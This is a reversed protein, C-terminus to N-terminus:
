AAAASGKVNADPLVSLVVAARLLPAQLSMCLTPLQADVVYQQAICLTAATNVHQLSGSVQAVKFVDKTSDLETFRANLVEALEAERSSKHDNDACLVAIDAAGLKATELALNVVTSLLESSTRGKADASKDRSSWSARHLQAYPGEGMLQCQQSDAFLLGAALEGPRVGQPSKGGYLMDKEQLADVFDQDIGSDCAVLLGLTPLQAKHATVTVFDLLAIPDQQAANSAQVLVRQAPWGADVVLSQAWTSAAAQHEASWSGPWLLMLRLPLVATEDARRGAALDAAYQQVAPHEVAKSALEELAQAALHLARHQGPSWALNPFNGALQWQAIAEQTPTCEMDAVRAAFVPFGDLTKLEDDLVQPVNGEQLTAMVEAASAGSPTHLACAVIGLSWSREQELLKQNVQDAAAAGEEPTATPKPAPKTPPSTVVSHLSWGAGFLVLPVVGMYLALDVGSPMRATSQWYIIVILWVVAFVAVLCLLRKLWTAM